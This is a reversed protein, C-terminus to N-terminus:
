YKLATAGSCAVAKKKRQTKRRLSQLLLPCKPSPRSGGFPLVLEKPEIKAFELHVGHEDQVGLVIDGERIENTQVFDIPITIKYATATRASLSQKQKNM